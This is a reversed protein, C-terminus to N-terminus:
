AMVCASMSAPSYSFWASTTPVGGDPGATVSIDSSGASPVFASGFPSLLGSSGVTAVM